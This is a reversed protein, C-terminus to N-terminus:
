TGPPRTTFRDRVLKAYDVDVSLRNVIKRLEADLAKNKRLVNNQEELKGLKKLAAEARKEALYNTYGKVISGVLAGFLSSLMKRRPLKLWLVM